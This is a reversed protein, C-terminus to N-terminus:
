CWLWQWHWHLASACWVGLSAFADIVSVAEAGTMGSVFFVRPVGTAPPPPPGLSAQAELAAGLTGELLAADLLVVRVFDAGMEDLMARVLRVEDRLFGVLLM